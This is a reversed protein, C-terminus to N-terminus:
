VFYRGKSAAMRKAVTRFSLGYWEGVADLVRMWEKHGKVASVKHGYAEGNLIRGLADDYRTWAVVSTLLVCRV